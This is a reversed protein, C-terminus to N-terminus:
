RGEAKDKLEAIEWTMMELMTGDDYRWWIIVGWSWRSHPHDSHASHHEVGFKDIAVIGYHDGKTPDKPSGDHPNLRRTSRSYYM